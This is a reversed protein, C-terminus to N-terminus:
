KLFARVNNMYPIKHITTVMVTAAVIAVAPQVSSLPVNALAPAWGYLVGEFLFYGLLMFAGAATFGLASKWVKPDKYMMVGAILAMAAKVILTAPMYVVYGALLDALMSGIGASIAAERPRLMYCALFIFIDGAHIYGNVTVSLKLYATTVMIVAAFLAIFCIKLTYKMNM